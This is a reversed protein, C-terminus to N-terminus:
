SQERAGLTWLKSSKQMREVNEYTSEKMNKFYDM